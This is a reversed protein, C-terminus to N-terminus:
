DGGKMNLATEDEEIEEGAKIVQIDKGALRSKIDKKLTNLNPQPAATSSSTSWWEEEETEVPSPEDANQEVFQLDASTTEMEPKTKEDPSALPPTEEAHPSPQHIVPISEEKQILPATKSASPLVPSAPQPEAPPPSALKEPPESLTVDEFQYVKTENAFGIPQFGMELDPPSPQSTEMIQQPDRDLIQLAFQHVPEVLLPLDIEIMESPYTGPASATIKVCHQGAEPQTTRHLFVMQLEETAGPYLMPAPSIKYCDLPLGELDIDFQCRRSDGYNTLELIGALKKGPRLPQDPLELKIGLNATRKEIICRKYVLLEFQLQFEGILITDGNDIPKTGHLQIVGKSVMQRSFLQIESGSLNILRYESGPSKPCILQLHRPAVGSGYEEPLVIDNSEQSGVLLLAKEIDIQKAWGAKNIIKINGFYTM